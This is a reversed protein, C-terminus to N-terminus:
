NVKLSEVPNANAARWNQYTVTAVTVIGVVLFAVLYVWVYMPTKYVFSELWQHVAYWAVPVAIVFCITLLRFYTKNFMWLIDATTSGFVKRVGIEKRKYESDFVVLGFVGVVSIFVALLSFTWILRELQSESHYLNELVTDYFRIDFPYDPDINRLVKSMQERVEVLDTNPKVKVYVYNSSNMQDSVIFAMPSIGMRFSAYNIDPIVGAIEVESVKDGVKLQFRDAAMRNFIFAGEIGDNKRFNRGEEVQIGLLDLFRYDVPICTFNITKEHYDMGWNQYDDSGSLVVMAFSVKEVGAIRSLDNALAEKSKRTLESMDSIILADKDYGLSATRTYRNQLFMFLSGIILAFSTIYQFGMLVMRLKRGSPSLGFSGKLVLAPQFSTQYYAPYSGALVGLLISIGGTLLVIEPQATVSLDASVLTSLVSRSALHLLLLSVLFASFSVLATEGVLMQRLSTVTSGLVRQTNISRMRVPALAVNFNTFNIAAIILIVWAITFLLYMASRRAKPIHDYIIDTQFHLDRLPVVVLNEADSELRDVSVDIGKIYSKFNETLGAAQSPDDLRIYFSNNWNSWMGKDKDALSCYMYNQVSTNAPFDRYVGGVYYVGNKVFGKLDTDMRKGVASENGFLKRALSQPILLQNDDKLSSTSGEVMEFGFVDTFGPTVPVCTEMYGKRDEAEGIKFYVSIGFTQRMGAAVIHPSSQVFLEALPRCVIAAQGREGMMADVRFIHDAKPTQRDFSMDFRWQMMIAMFVAFAVSLGLLNLTMALRFRRFVSLFNRLLLKM